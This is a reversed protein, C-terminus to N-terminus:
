NAEQLAPFAIGIEAVVVCAQTNPVFPLPSVNDTTSSVGCLPPAPVKLPGAAVLVLRQVARPTLGVCTNGFKALVALWSSRAVPMVAPLKVAEDKETPAHVPVTLTPCDTVSGLEGNPVIKMANTTSEWPLRM